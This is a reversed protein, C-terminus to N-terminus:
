SKRQRFHINDMELLNNDPTEELRRSGFGIFLVSGEAQPDHYPLPDQNLQVWQGNGSRVYGVISIV